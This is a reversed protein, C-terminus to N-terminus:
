RLPFKSYVDNMIKGLQETSPKPQGYKWSERFANTIQQHYAADLPALPGDAAGGLYKPTIHHLETTGAKGPYAKQAASVLDDFSSTAARSGSSAVAREVRAASM